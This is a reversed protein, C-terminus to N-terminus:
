FGFAEDEDHFIEAKAIGLDHSIKIDKLKIRDNAAVASVIELFYQIFREMTEKKFLGTSYTIALILEEGIEAGFLFMDFMSYGPEAATEKVEPATDEDHPSVTQQIYKLEPYTFTFFVDFIPNRSTDRTKVVRNVLDEFPYDQNEFADLTRKKVRDLFDVFFRDEELYNRLPLTNVFMGIIPDLGAHRRGAVPTGVIIDKQNSIKALFVIYLSFMLVFLTTNEKLALTKLLATPEKEIKFNLSSGKYGKEMPRPYDTPLSLVPVEVPFEQLWYTEQHKLAAKVPEANYWQAFDKYQIKLPPLDRGEYLRNFENVLIRKSAQDSIIHHMDMMLISKGGSLKILGVRLLPIEALNFPRVFRVFHHTIEAQARSLDYYEIEFKVKDNVKQVPEGAIFQFSTRFTEHKKVLIKFIEEIQKKEPIGTITRSVPVNYALGTEEFQDILFLRKQISSLPYYERKEVPEIPPTKNTEIEERAIEPDIGEKKLRKKLLKLKGPSLAAIRRSIDEM